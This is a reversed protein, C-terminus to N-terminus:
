IIDAVQFDNSADMSVCDIAHHGIVKLVSVALRNTSHGLLKKVSHIGFASEDQLVDM